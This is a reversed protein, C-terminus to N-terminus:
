LKHAKRRKDIDRLEPEIKKRAKPNVRDIFLVGNIHDNEHMIVRAEWGSFTREIPKGDIGMASVFISKPRVVDEYPGPISLCGEEHIWVEVSPNSLRPNILILPEKLSGDDVDSDSLDILFMRVSRGVQPAALGIGHHKRCTALLDAALQRIDDTIEGIEQAKQRLLPDNYFTLPLVRGESV